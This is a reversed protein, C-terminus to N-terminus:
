GVRVLRCDIGVTEHVLADSHPKVVRHEICLRLALQWTKDRQQLFQARQHRKM